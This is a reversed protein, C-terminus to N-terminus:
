RNTQLAYATDYAHWLAILLLLDTHFAAPLGAQWLSFLFAGAQLTHAAALLGLARRMERSPIKPFLLLVWLAFGASGLVPIGLLFCSRWLPPIKDPAFLLVATTALAFVILPSCWVLLQKASMAPHRILQDVAFVSCLLLGTSTMTQTLVPLLYSAGQLLLLGILLQKLWRPSVPRIAAALLLTLGCGLGAFFAGELTM